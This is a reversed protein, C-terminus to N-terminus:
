VPANIILLNVKLCPVPMGGHYSYHVKLVSLCLLNLRINKVQTYIAYKRRPYFEGDFWELPLLDSETFENRFMWIIHDGQPRNDVQREKSEKWSKQVEAIVSVPPKLGLGKWVADFIHCGIDGSWGTGFDIWARWKMPHYIEPAYSRVPATGIWIDWNMNAPADQEQAPRPGVLRYNEV